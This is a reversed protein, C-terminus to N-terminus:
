ENKKGGGEIFYQLIKELIVTNKDVSDKLQQLVTEMRVLVYIAVFIPFGVQAIIQTILQWDL